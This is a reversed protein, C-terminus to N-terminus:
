APAFTESVGYKSGIRAVGYGLPALWHAPVNEIRGDDFCVWYGSNPLYSTVTGTRGRFSAAGEERGRVGAGDVFKRKGRNQSTIIAGHIERVEIVTEVGLPGSFRVTATGKEELERLAAEATAADNGLRTRIHAYLTMETMKGIEYRYPGQTQVVYFNRSESRM